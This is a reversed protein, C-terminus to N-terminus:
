VVGFQSCFNFALYSFGDLCYCILLVRRFSDDLPRGLLTIEANRKIRFDEHVDTCQPKRIKALRSIGGKPGGEKRKHLIRDCRCMYPMKVFLAADDDSVARM